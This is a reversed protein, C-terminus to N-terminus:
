IKGYSVLKLASITPENIKLTLFVPNDKQVKLDTIKGGNISLKKGNQTASFLDGSLDRDAGDGDNERGIIIDGDFEKNARLILQYINFNKENKLYFFRAKLKVKTKRKRKEGSEDSGGSGGGSGDGSGDGSGGSGGGIGPGDDEGSFTDELLNTIIPKQDQSSIEYKKKIEVKRKLSEEESKKESEKPSSNNISGSLLSQFLQNVIEISSSSTQFKELMERRVELRFERIQKLIKEGDKKTVTIKKGKSNKVGREDLLHPLFQNHQHPEMKALIANGNQEKCFIISASSLPISRISEKYIHMGNRLYETQDNLQFNESCIMRCEVNGIKHIKKTKVIGLKNNEAEKYAKIFSLPSTKERKEFLKKVKEVYNEKNLKKGNVEVEMENNEFKWWYNTLFKRMIANEFNETKNVCLAFQSLGPENRKFFKPIKNKNEILGCIDRNGNKEIKGYEILRDKSEGNNNVFTALKAVGKFKYENKLNLSSYFVCRVLSYLFIANKGIGWSGGADNSGKNSVGEQNVCSAFNGDRDDGNLGITNYDKFSLVRIKPRSLAKEINELQKIHQGNHKPKWFKVISKLMIEFNEFDPIEDKSIEIEDVKIKLKGKNKEGQAMWEVHADLSNQTLEKVLSDSRDENFSLAAANSSPGKLHNPNPLINAFFKPDEM